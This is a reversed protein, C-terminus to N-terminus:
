ANNLLFWAGREDVEEGSTFRFDQIRVTLPATRSSRMTECARACSIWVTKQTSIFTHYLLTLITVYTFSRSWLPVFIHIYKNKM